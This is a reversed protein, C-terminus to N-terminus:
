KKIPFSTYSIEVHRSANFEEGCDGCWVTTDGELGSGFNFEWSDKHEHGCHPCVINSTYHTNFDM